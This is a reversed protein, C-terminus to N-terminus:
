PGPDIYGVYNYLGHGSCPPSSCPPETVEQGAFIGYVQSSPTNYFTSTGCIAAPTSFGGPATMKEYFRFISSQAMHVRQPTENSRTIFQWKYPCNPNCSPDNGKDWKEMYDYRYMVVDVHNGYYTALDDPTGHDIVYQHIYSLVNNGLNGGNYVELWDGKLGLCPPMEGPDCPRPENKADDSRWDYYNGDSNLWQTATLSIIGKFNYTIYNPVDVEVVNSTGTCCVIGLGNPKQNGCNGGPFWEPLSAGCRIQMLNGTADVHNPDTDHATLLQWHGTTGPCEAPKPCGGEWTEGQHAGLQVLNKFNGGTNSWFLVPNCIGTSPDPTASAVAIMPWTIGGPRANPINNLAAASKARVWVSNQGLLRAFITPNNIATTIRVADTSNPVFSSAQYGPNSNHYWSGGDYWAAQTYTYTSTIFTGYEVTIVYSPTGIVGGRNGPLLDDIRDTVDQNTASYTAMGSSLVVSAALRQVVGLTSADAGNQMNRRQLLANGGDAALAVLGLLVGLAVLLGVLVLTQGKARRRLSTIM